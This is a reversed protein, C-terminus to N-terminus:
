RREGRPSPRRIAPARGRRPAPAAPRSLPPLPRAPRADADPQGGAIRPTVPRAQLPPATVGPFSISTVPPTLPPIPPIPLDDANAEDVRDM